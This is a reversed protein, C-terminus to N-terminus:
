IGAKKNLNMLRHNYNSYLAFGLFFVGSYGFDGMITNRFFPLAMVYCDILGTLNKAYISQPLLWVAFNTVLFFIISNIVISVVTGRAGYKQSLKNSIVAALLFSGYTAWMVPHLGKILDTTLLTALIIIWAKKIGFKAGSFVASAGVSTANPLHPVLRTLINIITLTLIEM